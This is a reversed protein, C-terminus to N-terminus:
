GNHIKFGKRFVEKDSNCKCIYECAKFLFNVPGNQRPSFSGTQAHFVFILKQYGGLIISLGSHVKIAMETFEREQIVSAHIDASKSCFISQGM